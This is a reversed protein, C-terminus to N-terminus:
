TAMKALTDMAAKIRRLCERADAPTIPWVDIVEIGGGPTELHRQGIDDVAMVLPSIANRVEHITARAAQHMGLLDEKADQVVNHIHAPSCTAVTAADIGRWTEIPRKMM